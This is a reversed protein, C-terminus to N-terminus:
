KPEKNEPLFVAAMACAGSVALTIAAYVPQTIGVLAAFSAFGAWSSPEKFRNVIARIAPNM